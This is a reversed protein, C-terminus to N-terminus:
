LASPETSTKQLARMPRAAIRELYSEVLLESIFAPTRLKSHQHIFNAVPRYPQPCEFQSSLTKFRRNPFVATAATTAHASKNNTAAGRTCASSLSFHRCAM